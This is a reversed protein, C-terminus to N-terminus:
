RYFDIWQIEFTNGADQILDQPVTVEFYGQKLPINKEGESVIEINMWLPDGPLLTTEAEPSLIRQQSGDQSVSAAIQDHNSLIRFEELGQLHLRLLISGPMNGSRLEFAASGIGTPSHIDILATNDEFQIEVRDDPNKTTVLFDPEGSQANAQPSACSVLLFSFLIIQIPSQKM